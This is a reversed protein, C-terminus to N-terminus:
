SVVNQACGSVFARVNDVVVELLRQRAARTAWAIHPTIHCNKAGILPSDDVPPEQCLVDIGAGSIRGSNLADALDQENVLPGRGTNIIIASRKMLDISKKNVISRTEHTLPCHLSLVDARRFLDERDVAKEIGLPRLKEIPKSSLALVHMGFAKAIHAVAMGTNGLGVVAMTKGDLEELTPSYFCFDRCSEWEGLMVSQSHEEVQHVINLLHAFVCQAVSMTSYAPVNTVVIGYRRAADVDVVNYGTANVGIYKLVPLQSMEQDGLVVKNTLAIDAGRLREVTEEPATCEYIEVEGFERLGSWSLDGPNAAYGDLVVIKM